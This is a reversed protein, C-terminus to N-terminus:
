PHSPTGPSLSTGPPPCVSEHQHIASVLGGNYFLYFYILFFFVQFGQTFMKVKLDELEPLRLPKFCLARTPYLQSFARGPEPLLRAGGPGWAGRSSAAGGACPASRGAGCILPAQDRWARPETCKGPVCPDDSCVGGM